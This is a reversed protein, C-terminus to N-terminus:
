IVNKAKSLQSRNSKVDVNMHALRSKLEVNGAVLRQVNARLGNIAERKEDNRKVLEAQQELNEDVLKIVNLRLEEWNKEFDDDVMVVKPKGTQSDPSLQGEFDLFEYDLDSSSNQVKLPFRKHESIPSGPKSFTRTSKYRNMLQDYKKALSKYSGRLDEVYEVLSPRKKYYMEARKAFTDGDDEMLSLMNKVKNEVDSLTSQLRQSEEGRSEQPMKTSFVSTHSMKSFAGLSTGSEQSGCAEAKEFM